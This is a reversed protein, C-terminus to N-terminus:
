LLFLHHVDETIVNYMRRVDDDNMENVVWRVVM